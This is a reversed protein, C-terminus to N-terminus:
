DLSQRLAAAAAIPAGVFAILSLGCLILFPTKFGVMPDNAAAAVGFILVPICLPLILISLLLGGRRLSVTLAAGIAGIFTLAPTGVLLSFVLPAIQSGPLALMLGFVPAAVVLPLGSLLWHAACKVLIILELPMRSTRLLDLSGDEQDAQFLRDLGLLSALLAAIWLIAPAIRSLLALDPGIAFPILVVLSLFFLIGFSAGGGIRRGIALERRFLATVPRLSTRHADTELKANM